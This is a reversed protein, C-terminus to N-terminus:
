LPSVAVEYWSDPGDEAMCFNLEPNLGNEHAWNSFKAWEEYHPNAPTAINSEQTWNSVGMARAVPAFKSRMGLMVAHPMEFTQVIEKTFMYKVNEFFCHVIGKNLQQTDANAEAVFKLEPQNIEM